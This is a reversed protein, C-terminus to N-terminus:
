YEIFNLSKSLQKMYDIISYVDFICSYYFSVLVEELCGLCEGTQIAYQIKAIICCYEGLVSCTRRRSRLNECSLILIAFAFYQTSVKAICLRM